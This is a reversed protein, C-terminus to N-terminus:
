HLGRCAPCGGRDHRGSSCRGSRGGARDGRRDHCRHSGLRVRGRGGATARRGRGRYHRIASGNDVVMDPTNFPRQRAPRPVRDAAWGANLSARVQPSGLPAHDTSSSERLVGLKSQCRSLRQSVRDALLAEREAIPSLGDVILSSPQTSSRSAVLVHPPGGPAQGFDPSAMASYMTVPNLAARIATSPPPPTARTNHAHM